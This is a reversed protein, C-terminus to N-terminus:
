VSFSRKNGSLDHVKTNKRWGKKNKQYNSKIEGLQFEVM